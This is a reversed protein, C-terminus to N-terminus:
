ENTFYTLTGRIYNGVQVKGVARVLLKGASEIAEVMGVYSSSSASTCACTVSNNVPVPLDYTLVAGANNIVSDMKINFDLICLNGRQSFHTAYHTVDAGTAYPTVSGRDSYTPHEITGSAM